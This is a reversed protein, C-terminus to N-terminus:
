LRLICEPAYRMWRHRCHRAKSTKLILSGRRQVLRGLSRYFRRQRSSLGERLHTNASPTKQLAFLRDINFALLRLLFATTNARFSQGVLCNLGLSQRGVKFVRECDGRDNYFRWVDLPAWDLSTIIAQYRYGEHGSIIKGPPPSKEDHVRRRIVVVRLRADLKLSEGSIAAIDIDEDIPSFPAAALHAKLHKQFPLAIAFPLRQELLWSCLGKSYFGSDLRIMAAVGPSHRRVRALSEKLFSIVEETDVGSGDRYKASVVARSAAISAVLPFHRRRNRGLKGCYGFEAGEQTGFCVLATSDGDLIAAQMPPQEALGVECLLDELLEHGSEDLHDLAQSFVKRCPWYSLRCMKTLLADDHAEEIHRLRHLGALQCALFAHLVNHVPHIRRTTPGVMRAFRETLGLKQMFTLLPALGAFRTLNTAEPVVRISPLPGRRTSKSRAM